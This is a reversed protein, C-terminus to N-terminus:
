RRSGRAVDEGRVVPLGVEADQFREGRLIGAVQGIGHNRREPRVLFEQVRNHGVVSLLKGPVCPHRPFQFDPVIECPGVVRPFASRVLVHVTQYPLVQRLSRGKPAQGPFLHLPDLSFQVVPRSLSKSKQSRQLINRCLNFLNVQRSLDAEYLGCFKM